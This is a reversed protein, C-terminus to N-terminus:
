KKEETTAELKAEEKKTEEENGFNAKFFKPILRMFEPLCEDLVYEADKREIEFIQKELRAGMVMSHFLLPELVTIDDSLVDMIGIERNQTEKIERATHKLAYYGVKVPYEKGNYNIKETM